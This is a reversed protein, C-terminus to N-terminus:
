GQAVMMDHLGYVLLQYDTKYVLRFATIWSVASKGDPAIYVSNGYAVNKYGLAELKKLM